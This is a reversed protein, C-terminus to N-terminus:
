RRKKPLDVGYARESGEQVVFYSIITHPFGFCFSLIRGTEDKSNQARMGAYAFNSLLWIAGMGAVGIVISNDKNSM